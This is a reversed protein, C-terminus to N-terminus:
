NKFCSEDFISLVGFFFRCVTNKVGDSAKPFSDFFFDVVNERLKPIPVRLLLM